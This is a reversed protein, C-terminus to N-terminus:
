HYGGNGGGETAISAPKAVSHLHMSFKAVLRWLTPIFQLVVLCKWANYFARLVRHHRRGIWASRYHGRNGHFYKAYLYCARLDHNNIKYYDPIEQVKSFGLKEYMSIAVHNDTLVHLYLVGCQPDQQVQEICKQILHTGLGCGRIKTGVTMIYFLKPHSVVCDILTTRTSHSLVHADVFAGVVCGVIEERQVEEEKREMAITGFNNMYNNNHYRRLHSDSSSLSSSRGGSEERLVALYTFLLDNSNPMKGYVLADYFEAQYVVPFWELHLKEIQQRDRPLISRFEFLKSLLELNQEKHDNINNSDDEDAHDIICTVIVDDQQSKNTWTTHSPLLLNQPDEEQAIFFPLRQVSRPSSSRAGELDHSADDRIDGKKLCGYRDTRTAGRHDMLTNDDDDDDVCIMEM